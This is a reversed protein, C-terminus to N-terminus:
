TARRFRGWFDIEWFMDFTGLPSFTERFQTSARDGPIYTYPASASGTLDPFLFSRNFTVQARADLIRAAAIRLDYNEALATRILSQLAEDQFIQFWAVAGLSDASVPADPPRGRFEAPVDLEPRRYDPGVTCGALLLAASVLLAKPKM